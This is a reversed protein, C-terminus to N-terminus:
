HQRCQPGSTSKVRVTNPTSRIIMDVDARPQRSDTDPKNCQSTNDHRPVIPTYIRKYQYITFTNSVSDNWLLGESVLGHSFTSLIHALFLLMQEFLTHIHLSQCAVESSLGFCSGVLQQWLIHFMGIYFAPTVGKCSSPLAM